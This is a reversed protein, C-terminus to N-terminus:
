YRGNFNVQVLHRLLLYRKATKSRAGKRVEQGFNGYSWTNRNLLLTLRSERRLSGTLLFLQDWPFAPCFTTFPHFMSEVRWFADSIMHTSRFARRPQLGFVTWLQLWLGSTAAWDHSCVQVSVPQRALISAN